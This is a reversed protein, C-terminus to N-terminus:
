ETEDPEVESVFEWTEGGDTSNFKGKVKGGKYDGNPGQQVLMILHDGVKEPTEATVFHLKYKDPVHVKAQKWTQGTDKTVYLEPAEPNITGYSLFGTSEDIFGGNAIMRTTNPRSAERWSKGGDYTLHVSSAEQSMTRGGSLIAYGFDDNM